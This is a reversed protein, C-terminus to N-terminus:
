RMLFNKTCLLIHIHRLIKVWNLELLEYIIITNILIIKFVFDVICILLLMSQFNNEKALILFFIEILKKGGWKSISFNLSFTFSILSRAARFSLAPYNLSDSTRRYYASLISSTFINIKIM